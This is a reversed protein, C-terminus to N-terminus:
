VCTDDFCELDPERHLEPIPENLISDYGEAHLKLPQGPVDRTLWVFHGGFEVEIGDYGEIPADLVTCELGCGFGDGNEQSELTDMLTISLSLTGNALSLHCKGIETHDTQSKEIEEEQGIIALCQEFEYLATQCVPGIGFASFLENLENEILNEPYGTEGHDEYHQWRDAIFDEKTLNAFRVAAKHMRGRTRISHAMLDGFDHLAGTPLAQRAFALFLEVDAYDFERTSIRHALQELRKRARWSLSDLTLMSEGVVEHSISIQPVSRYCHPGRVNRQAVAIGRLGAGRPAGEADGM